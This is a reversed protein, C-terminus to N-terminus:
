LISCASGSISALYFEKSLLFFEERGAGLLLLLILFLVLILVRLPPLRGHELPDSLHAYYLIGLCLLCKNDLFTNTDIDYQLPTLVSGRCRLYMSKNEKINIM